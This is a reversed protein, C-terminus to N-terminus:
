NAFHVERLMETKEKLRELMRYEGIWEAFELTEQLEDQEYRQVFEQTSMRHKKEFVRLRKESRNTAADLLRLENNLAAEVLPQIPRDSATKLTLEAM